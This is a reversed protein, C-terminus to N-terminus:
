LRPRTVERQDDSVQVTGNMYGMEEDHRKPEQVGGEIGDSRERRAGLGADGGLHPVGSMIRLPRTERSSRVVPIATIEPWVQLDDIGQFTHQPSLILGTM